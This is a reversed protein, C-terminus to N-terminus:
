VMLTKQQQLHDRLIWIKYNNEYLMVSKNFRQKEKHLPKIEMLMIGKYKPSLFVVLNALFIQKYLPLVLHWDFRHHDGQDRLLNELTNKSVVSLLM